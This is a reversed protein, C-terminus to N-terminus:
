AGTQLSRMLRLNGLRQASVSGNSCDERLSGRILSALCNFADREIAYIPQLEPYFCIM